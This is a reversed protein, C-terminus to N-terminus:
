MCCHGSRAFLRWIGIQAFGMSQLKKFSLQIKLLHNIVLSSNRDAQSKAFIAL